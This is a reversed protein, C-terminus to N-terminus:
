LFKIASKPQCFLSSAFKFILCSFNDVESSSFSFYVFLYSCFSHSCWWVYWCRYCWLGSSVSFPFSFITSSIIASLTGFKIWSKFIFVDLFNLLSCAPYVWLSGCWFVLWITLLCLSLRSILFSFCNMVYLCDETLNIASKWWFSSVVSALFSQSKIYINLPSLSFVSGVLIKEYRGFETDPM